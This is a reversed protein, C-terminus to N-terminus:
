KQLGEIVKKKWDERLEKKREGFDWKKRITKRYVKIKWRELTYILGLTETKTPEDLKNKYNDYGVAVFDPKVWIIKHVFRPSFRLIPEVSIMKSPFDLERMLKLNDVNRKGLDSEITCGLVINESFCFNFYRKPNKTLLLFKGKSHKIFYLIKEIMYRPVSDEFLDLMSCVFVFDKESFNNRLFAQHFLRHEGTYKKMKYKEALRRAWCYSCGINCKGALPNWTKTIFPFGRKSSFRVVNM